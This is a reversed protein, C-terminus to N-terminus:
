SRVPKGENPKTRGVRVKERATVLDIGVKWSLRHATSLFGPAWAEHRDLEAIAQLLRYTAADIHRM